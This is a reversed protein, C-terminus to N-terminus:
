WKAAIRGFILKKSYDYKTIYVIVKDGILFENDAHLNSYLCLCQTDDPMRCFVGGKYKGGIIASRRSGIPHRTEAGDFPNPLTEKISIKLVNEASVYETIKADFEQGASYETRLDPVATYTIDRQTLIIDHGHCEAMARKPGVIILRCKVTDGTKIQKSAFVRQIKRLALKRSAVACEGVRDINTVVFDIKAGIMNRGLREPIAEDLFVESLPILVKVRYNIIVLSSLHVKEEEGTDKNTVKFNHEDVGVVVGTLVSRSKYSAYIDNWEQQQLPTLGKDLERTNLMNFSTHAEPEDSTKSKEAKTTRKISKQKKESSSSEEFLVGADTEGASNEIVINKGEINLEEVSALEAPETNVINTQMEIVENVQATEISETKKRAM